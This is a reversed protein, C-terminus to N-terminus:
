TTIPPREEGSPLAGTPHLCVVGDLALILHTYLYVEVGWVGEHLPAYDLVPAVKVEGQRINHSTGQYKNESGCLVCLYM